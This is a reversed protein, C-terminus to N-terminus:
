AGVKVGYSVPEAPIFWGYTREDGEIMSRDTPDYGFVYKKGSLREIIRRYRANSYERMAVTSQVKREAKALEAKVAELEKKLQKKTM